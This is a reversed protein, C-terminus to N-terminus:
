NLSAAIHALSKSKPEWSIQPAVFRAAFPPYALVERLLSPDNRSALSNLIGRRELEQMIELMRPDPDPLEGPEGEAAVGPWLTNDLDWVVCKVVRDIDM